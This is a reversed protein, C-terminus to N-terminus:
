GQNIKRVASRRSTAHAFGDWGLGTGQFIQDNSILPATQSTVRLGLINVLQTAAHQIKRRHSKRPQLFASIAHNVPTKATNSRCSRWMCCISYLTSICVNFLDIYADLVLLHTTLEWDSAQTCSSAAASAAETAADRLDARPRKFWCM